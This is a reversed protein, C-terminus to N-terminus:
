REAGRAPEPQEGPSAATRIVAGLERVARTPAAVLGAHLHWVHWMGDLRRVDVPVGDRVLRDALRDSDARLLETAGVHITVPPLRRLDAFAPSVEPRSRDAGAYDEASRDLWSTRLLVDRRDDHTSPDSLTLDTWPSVLVLCAPQGVGRDRLRLALAVALGGGASDGAVAIDTPRFGRRLLARYAAEADDLAAPFPHEPALRYDLSFAPRGAAAALHAVLARHTRPSGTTYGGGHLHLLVRQRDLGPLDIREAPVPGLRTQEVRTGAPLRRLTSLLELARRRRDLPVCPRLRPRVAGRVVARMLAQPVPAAHGRPSM